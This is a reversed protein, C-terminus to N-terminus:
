NPFGAHPWNESIEFDVVFPGATLDLCGAGYPTDSNPTFAVQSPRAAM